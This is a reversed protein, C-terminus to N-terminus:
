LINYIYIMDKSHYLAYEDFVLVSFHFLYENKGIRLALYLLLWNGMLVLPVKGEAYIYDFDDIQLHIIVTACIFDNRQLSNRISPM